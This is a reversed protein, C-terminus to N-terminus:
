QMQITELYSKLNNIRLPKVHIVDQDMNGFIPGWVPMEHNGHSRIASGDELVAMLHVSPFKGGNNRSLATLDAPQQRLAKAVPGHGKGDMGHCPACYSGFMQKGDVPSVAHIRITVRQNSQDAYGASVAIAAALAFFIFLSKLM